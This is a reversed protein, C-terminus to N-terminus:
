AEVHPQSAVTRSRPTPLQRPNAEPADSQFAVSANVVSPGPPCLNWNRCFAMLCYQEVLHFLLTQSDPTWRPREYTIALRVAHM